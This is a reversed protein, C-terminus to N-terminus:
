RAPATEVPGPSFAVREDLRNLAELTRARFAPYEAPSIEPCSRVERVRVDIRDGDRRADREISLCRAEERFSEPVNSVRSGAPLRVSYAWEHERPAGLWLPLQRTALATLSELDLAARLRLRKVRGETQLADPAQAPQKLLGAM